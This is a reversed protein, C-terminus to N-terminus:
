ISKRNKMDLIVAVVDSKSLGPGPIGQPGEISQGPEGKEGRISEGVPGTEGKEGRPLVVDLFQVGEHERLSVSAKVRNM